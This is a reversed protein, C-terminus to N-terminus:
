PSSSMTDTQRWLRGFQSQVTVVWQKWVQTIHGCIRMRERATRATVKNHRAVDAGKEAPM